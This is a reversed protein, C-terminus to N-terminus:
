VSLCVFLIVFGCDSFRIKVGALGFICGEFSNERRRVLLVFKMLFSSSFNIYFHVEHLFMFNNNWSDGHLIVKLAKSDNMTHDFVTKIQNKLGKWRLLISEDLDNKLLESSQDIPTGFLSEMNGTKTFKEMIDNVADVFIQFETPRQHQVVLSTAHYKGYETVVLDIHRRSLPQKRPWLEYGKSKLNDLVIVEMNEGTFSGYCKPVSNYPAKVGKDKQHQFFCPLVKQYMFIENLFAEKVPSTERLAQSKKSCKLVLDYNKSSQNDATGEVLVFVIDGMYGDGKESNGQIKVSIDKFNEDKLVIKLWSRIENESSDNTSGM